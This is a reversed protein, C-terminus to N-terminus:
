VDDGGGGGGGGFVVSSFCCCSCHCNFPSSLLFPLLASLLLVLLSFFLLVLVYVCSLFNTKLVWDVMFTMDPHNVCVCTCM